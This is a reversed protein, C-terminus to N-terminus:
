LAKVDISVVAVVVCCVLFTISRILLLSGAASASRGRFCNKAMNWFFMIFNGCKRKSSLTLMCCYVENETNVKVNSRAIWNNYVEGIIYSAFSISYDCLLSLQGFTANENFNGDDNNLGESLPERIYCLRTEGTLAKATM